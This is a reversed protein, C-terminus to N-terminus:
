PEWKHPEVYESNLWDNEYENESITNPMGLKQLKNVMCLLSITGYIREFLVSQVEPREINKM